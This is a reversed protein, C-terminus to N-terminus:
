LVYKNTATYGDAQKLAQVLLLITKVVFIDLKQFIFECQMPDADPPFELLCPLDVDDDCRLVLLDDDLM